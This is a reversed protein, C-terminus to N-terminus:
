GRSPLRSELIHECLESFGRGRPSPTIFHPGVALKHDRVNSVGVSIRFFDFAPADNGSDGVFIWADKDFGSFVDRAAAEIGVAKDWRGTAAHCHVSSTVPECGEERILAALAQRKDEAVVEEEAVDFALDYRRLRADSAERISPLEESVRRRIQAHVGELSTREAAGLVYGECARGRRSYFWGAGNEGIAIDVPLIRALVEAWGLPRGTVAILRVGARRIARMSELACPMLEGDETITDDVDFALGVLGAPVPLEAIPRM